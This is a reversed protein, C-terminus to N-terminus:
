KLETSDSSCDYEINQVFRGYTDLSEWKLRRGGKCSHLTGYHSMIKVSEWVLSSASEHWDKSVLVCAGQDEIPLDALCM